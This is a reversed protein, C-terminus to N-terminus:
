YADELLVPPPALEDSLSLGRALLTDESLLQNVIADLGLKNNLNSMSGPECLSCLIDHVIYETNM